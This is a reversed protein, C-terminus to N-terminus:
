FNEAFFGNAKVSPIFQWGRCHSIFKLEKPPLQKYSKGAKTIYGGSNDKVYVGGATFGTVYGRRGEFEVKDNLHFGYASPTNKPNRKAGRNPTKRGKRATAEHLSRKKIRTQRALFPEADEKIEKIGSAAAADNYHTKELGLGCRDQYTINGYTFEADPYRIFFKRRIINMFVPEKYAKPTKKQLVHGEKNAHLAIHCDEHLLAWDEPRDRDKGWIHHLRWKNGTEYFSGCYQCKGKERSLLYAIRNRYGYMEGQQYETGQIEPNEIKQIDFKGVEITLKADPLLLCFKDIWAMINGIRSRISPPLWGGPKTRNRWRPKRYRTKRHRRGRRYTKRTELLPKVDDRLEITGKAIVKKGSTVAIGTNKVGTDIGINVEQVAEGTQYTLQITFPEYKYIKAKGQKILLRAKRQTTPMLPKGRMNVVFVRM